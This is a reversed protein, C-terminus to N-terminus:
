KNVVTGCWYNTKFKPVSEIIFYILLCLFSNRILLKKSKTFILFLSLFLGRVRNLLKTIIYNNIMYSLRFIFDLDDDRM